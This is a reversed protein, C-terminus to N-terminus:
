CRKREGHHSSPFAYARSASTRARLFFLRKRSLPPLRESLHLALRHACRRIGLRKRRHRHGVDLARPREGLRLDGDPDRHPQQRRAARGHEQRRSTPQSPAHRHWGLSDRQRHTHGDLAQLQALAAQTYPSLWNSPTFLMPHTSRELLPPPRAPCRGLGRRQRAHRHGSGSPFAAVAELQATEYDSGEGLIRACPGRMAHLFVDSFGCNRVAMDRFLSM